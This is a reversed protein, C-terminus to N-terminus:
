LEPARNYSSPEFYPLSIDQRIISVQYQNILERSQNIAQLGPLLRGLFMPHFYDKKMPYGGHRYANFTRIRDALSLPFKREPIEEQSSYISSQM